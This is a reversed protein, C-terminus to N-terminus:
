GSSVHVVYTSLYTTCIRRAVQGLAEDAKHFLYMSVYRPITIFIACPEVFLLQRPLM